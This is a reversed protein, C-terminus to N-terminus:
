NNWQSLDNIDSYIDIGLEIAKQLEQEAEPCGVSCPLMFIADSNELAKIRMKMAFRPNSIGSILLAPNITKYGKMEIIKQMAKFKEAREHKPADDVKGAIYITKKM